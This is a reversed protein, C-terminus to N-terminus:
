RSRNSNNQGPVPAEAPNTFDPLSIISRSMSEKIKTEMDNFAKIYAEKFEAAKKGQFGMALFTFGDRTMEYCPRQKGQKDIYNSPSFNRQSFVESCDLNKISEIVDKHNRKFIESVTISDTIIENKSNIKVLENM